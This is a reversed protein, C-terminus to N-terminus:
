ATAQTEELLAKLRLLEEVAEMVEPDKNGLGADKLRRVESAQAEVAAAVEDASMPKAHRVGGPECITGDELSWSSFAYAIGLTEMKLKGDVVKMAELPWRSAGEIMVGPPSLKKAYSGDYKKDGGWKGPLVAPKGMLEDYDASKLEHAELAAVNCYTYVYEPAASAEGGSLGSDAAPVEVDEEATEPQSAPVPPPGVIMCAIPANWLAKPVDSADAVAPHIPKGTRSEYTSCLAEALSRKESSEFPMLEFNRAWEFGSKKNGGKGKGKGKGRSGGKKKAFCLVSPSRPSAMSWACVPNVLKGPCLGPAWAAGGALACLVLAM